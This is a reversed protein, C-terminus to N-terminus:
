VKNSQLNYAYVIKKCKYSVDDPITNKDDQQIIKVTMGYGVRNMEIEDM